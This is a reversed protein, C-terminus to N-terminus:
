RPNYTQNPYKYINAKSSRYLENEYNYFPIIKHIFSKVFRNWVDYDPIQLEARARSIFKERLEMAQQWAIRTGQSFDEMYKRYLMKEQIYWAVAEIAVPENPIMLYGDEDIPKSFYSLLITGEQFNVIINPYSITYEIECDVNLNACKGIHYDNNAFSGTAPKMLRFEPHYISYKGGNANTYNFFHKMYAVKHEPHANQWLRDANVIIDRKSCHDTDESCKPCELTVELSCGMQRDTFAVVEERLHDSCKEDQKYAAQVITKFGTPLQAKYNRVEILSIKHIFQEDTIIRSTADNAWAIIDNKDLEGQHGSLRLYEKVAAKVSILQTNM